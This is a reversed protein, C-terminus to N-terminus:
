PKCEFGVGSLSAKVLDQVSCRGDLNMRPMDAPSRSRDVKSSQVATLAMKFGAFMLAETGTKTHHGYPWAYYDVPKGILKALQMRSLVAEGVAESDPISAQNAEYKVFHTVSHAGVTVGPLASLERVQDASMYGSAGLAGTIIFVACPIGRRSLEKVVPYNTALGDDFTLVVRNDSAPMSSIDKLSAFGPGATVEGVYEWFATPSLNTPSPPATPHVSHFIVVSGAYAPASGTLLLVTTTLAAGLITKFNRM